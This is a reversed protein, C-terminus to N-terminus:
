LIFQRMKYRVMKPATQVVNFKKKKATEVDVKQFLNIKACNVM